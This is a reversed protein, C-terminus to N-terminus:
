AAKNMRSTLSFFGWQAVVFLEGSEDELIDGMSVSMMSHGHVKIHDVHSTIDNGRYFADELDKAEIDAVYDYLGQRLMDATENALEYNDFFMGMNRRAEVRPSTIGKNFDDIEVKSPVIQYVKFSQM